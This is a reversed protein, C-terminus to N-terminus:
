YNLNNKKIIKASLEDRDYHFEDVLYDEPFIKCLNKFRNTLKNDALTITNFRILCHKPNFNTTLLNLIFQLEDISKYKFFRPCHDLLLVDCETKLTDLSNFLKDFYINSLMYEKVTRIHEIKTIKFFNKEYHFGCSDLAVIKKNEFNFLDFLQKKNLTQVKYTSKFFEERNKDTVKTKEM